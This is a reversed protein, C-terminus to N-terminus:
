AATRRLSHRTAISQDGGASYSATRLLKQGAPTLQIAFSRRDHPNPKREAHGRCEPHAVARDGDGAKRAICPHRVLM